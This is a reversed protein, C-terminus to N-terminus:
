KEPEKRGNLLELAGCISEKNRKYFSEIDTSSVVPLGLRRQMEQLTKDEDTPISM